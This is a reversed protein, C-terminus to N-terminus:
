AEHARYVLQAFIEGTFHIPVPGRPDIVLREFGQLVACRVAEAGRLVTHPLGRPSANRLAEMSTFAAAGASGDPGQIARARPPAGSGALVPEIAFLLEAGLFSECVKDWAAGDPDERYRRVEDAFRAASARECCSISTFHSLAADEPAGYVSLLLAAIETALAHMEEATRDDTRAFFPEEGRPLAFRHERLADVAAADIWREPPLLENTPLEIRLGGDAARRVRAFADNGIVVFLAGDTEALEELAHAVRSVDRLSKSEEM